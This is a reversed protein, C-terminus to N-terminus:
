VVPLAADDGPTHTSVGTESPLGHLAGPASHAAPRLQTVAGPLSEPFQWDVAAVSPEAHPGPTAPQSALVKTQKRSGPSLKPIQPSKASTGSPPAHVLASM